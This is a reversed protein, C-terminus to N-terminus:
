VLTSGGDILVSTGTMYRNTIVHLALRAPEDPSAVYGVPLKAAKERLLDAKKDGLADLIPTEVLGPAIANVRIPALELALSRALSDVGALAAALISAAASPRRGLSGGCFLISAGENFRGSKIAALPGVIREDLVSRWRDPGSRAITGLTPTGATIALYDLPEMVAFKEEISAPDRLDAVIAKAGKIESVAAALKNEDRGLITVRAGSDAALKALALGIGSSGGVIVFHREALDERPYDSAM